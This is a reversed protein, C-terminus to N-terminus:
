SGGALLEITAEIDAHTTRPNITCLRFVSRGRLTTSSLAAVGDRAVRAVATAPDEHGAGKQTGSRVETRGGAREFTVIALQAPTVVHWREDDRLVHEAHEALEIGRAIAGRIAELGYIQFTLWVKIARARRTLELGRNRMDVERARATTDALYEPTMSFAAELAGQRRVFLSGVDYPQFLWKHPDLVLSDAREIGSLLRRGKECLAGPAGYAGDVHFWLDERACLDALEPLPDVAGTNTTGATAIVIAPRRGARRDARIAESLVEVPMRYQEDTGLLRIDEPVCGIAGLDRAISAHAQDSLYVVGPGTAHRAAALGTLNAMSGGSTLVGETGEPMGLLARLWDLVVLEVTTPGSGGAWSTGIANFGTALWEGLVAGFSSPSPVRAFYRPHDGHQMNALAVDVLTTMSALADVPLEPPAGGLAETLTDPAGTAVAPREPGHEFHDVVRDVVWHALRRMEAPEMGLPDARHGPQRDDERTRASDDERTRARDEVRAANRM